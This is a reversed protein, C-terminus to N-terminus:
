ETMGDWMEDEYGVEILCLRSRSLVGFRGAEFFYVSFSTQNVIRNMM